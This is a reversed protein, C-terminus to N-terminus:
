RFHIKNRTDEHLRKLELSASISDFFEDWKVERSPRIGVFCAPVDPNGSGDGPTFRTIFFGDARWRPLDPQQSVPPVPFRVWGNESAMREASTPDSVVSLCTTHFFDAVSKGDAPQAVVRPRSQLQPLPREQAFAAVSIMVAMVAIISRM